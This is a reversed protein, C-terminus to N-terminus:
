QKLYYCNDEKHDILSIIKRKKVGLTGQTHKVLFAEFSDNRIYLGHIILIDYNMSKLRLIKLLIRTTSPEIFKM